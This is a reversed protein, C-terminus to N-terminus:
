LRPQTDTVDRNRTEGEAHGDLKGWVLDDGSRLMEALAQKEEARSRRYDYFFIGLKWGYM